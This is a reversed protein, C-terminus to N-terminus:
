LSVYNICFPSLTILFRGSGKKQWYDPCNTFPSEFHHFVDELKVLYVKSLCAAWWCLSGEEKSLLKAFAFSTKAM